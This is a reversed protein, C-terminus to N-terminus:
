SKAYAKGVNEPLLLILIILPDPSPNRLENGIAIRIQRLRVVSVPENYHKRCYIAMLLYTILGALLQVM